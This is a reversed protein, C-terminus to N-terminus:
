KGELFTLADVQEGPFTRAEPLAGTPTQHPPQTGCASGTHQVLSPNHIHETWLGCGHLAQVVGGDVNRLRFRDRASAAKFVMHGVPAQQQNAPDQLPVPKQNCLLTQVAERSFVLALAGKGHQDARHWGTPKGEIIKENDWLSTYLNWWGQKPYRCRELYQRLNRVCMVDDQFVAFYDAAHHRIYLEALSLIWSGYVGIRPYRCTIRSADVNLGQDEFAVLVSPLHSGDVFLRPEDFGGEALSKLTQPLTTKLRKDCTTVGYAWKVNM